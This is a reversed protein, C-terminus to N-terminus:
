RHEGLLRLLWNVGEIKAINVVKPRFAQWRWWIFTAFGFPMALSMGNFFARTHSSLDNANGLAIWALLLLGLGGMLKAVTRNGIWAIALAFGAACGQWWSNTGWFEFGAIGTAFSFLLAAISMYVIM